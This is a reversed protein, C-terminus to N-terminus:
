LAVQGRERPVPMKGTLRLAMKARSETAEGVPLIGTPRMPLIGMGRNKMCTRLGQCLRRSASRHDQATGRAPPTALVTVAERRQGGSKKSRSKM